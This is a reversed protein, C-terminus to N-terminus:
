PQTRVLDDISADLADLFAPSTRVCDDGSGNGAPLSCSASRAPPTPTPAPTPAATPDPTPTAAPSPAPTAKGPLIVNSLASSPGTLNPIEVKNTQQCAVLSAAGLLLLARRLHDHAPRM